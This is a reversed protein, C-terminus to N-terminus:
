CFLPRQLSVCGYASVGGLKYLPATTQQTKSHQGRGVGAPCSFPAPRRHRRRSSVKRVRRKLIAEAAFIRDGAALPEM